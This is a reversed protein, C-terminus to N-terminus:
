AFLGPFFDKTMRHGPSWEQEIDARSIELRVEAADGDATKMQLGTWEAEILSPTAAMVVAMAVTAPTTFSRLVKAIDNDVNELIITAASPADDLDSPVLTSALVFLYPEAADMWSSRTCYMLPEDSLRETNDTSFLVPEDIDPHTIHVLVVYVEDTSEADQALRANLSVRRM